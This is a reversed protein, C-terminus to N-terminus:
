AITQKPIFIACGCVYCFARRYPSSKPVVKQNVEGRRSDKLNEDESIVCLISDINTHKM